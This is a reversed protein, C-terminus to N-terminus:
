YTSSPVIFFAFLDIYSSINPLVIEANVISIKWENINMTCNHQSIFFLSLSFYSTTCEKPYFASNKTCM